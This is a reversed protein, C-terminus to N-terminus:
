GVGSFAFGTNILDVETNAERSIKKPHVSVGSPLGRFELELSTRTQHQVVEGSSRRGPLTAVAPGLGRRTRAPQQVLLLAEDPAAPASEQPAEEESIGGAWSPLLRRVANLKEMVWAIGRTFRDVIGDWLDGFFKKIPEWNKYILYAAGALLAIAGIIWGIPTAAITAGLTGMAASAAGLGPVAGFGATGVGFMSLAAAGLSWLIRGGVVAATRAMQFTFRLAGLSARAFATAARGIWGGLGKLAGGLLQAGTKNLGFSWSVLAAASVFTAIVAIGGSLVGLLIGIAGAALGVNRTLTPHEKSFDTLGQVAEGLTDLFSNYAPELQGGVSRKLAEVSAGLRASAGEATANREAARAASTGAVDTANALGLLGERNKTLLASVHPAIVPGFVQQLKAERAATGLGEVQKAMDLLIASPARLNRSADRTEVGWQRMAAAGKSSPAALKSLIKDLMPAEGGLMGVLGATEEFSVGLGSARHTLSQTTVMLQELSLDSKEAARSLVDAVYGAKSADMGWKGLLDAGERMVTNLDAHAGWALQAFVPSTALVANADGTKAAIETMAAGIERSGFGTRQSIGDAVAGMQQLQEATAGTKLRVREMETQFASAIKVPEDVLRRAAAGVDDISSRANSLSGAVQSLRQFRENAKKMEEFNKTIQRLKGTALNVVDVVVGLRLQAM